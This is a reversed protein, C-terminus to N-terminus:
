WVSSARRRSRTSPRASGPGCSTTRRSRCTGAASGARAAPRDCTGPLVAVPTPHGTFLSFAKVDFTFDDPTADVWGQTTEPVPVAYYSTDVEVMPFQSAYFGLRRAPTSASRPYWGSRLLSQDAWSSTGVKIVAM